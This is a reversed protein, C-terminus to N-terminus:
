RPRRDHGRDQTKAPPQPVTRQAPAPRAAAPPQQRSEQGRQGASRSDIAGTNGRFVSHPQQTQPPATRVEPRRTDAPRPVERPREPPRVDPPRTQPPKMDPPRRTDPRGTEPRVDPPRPTVPKMDPPRRTEPGVDPPRPTVPKMDPRPRDPRGAEPQAPFQRDRGRNADIRPDRPDINRRIIKNDRPQERPPQQARAAGDGRQRRVNDYNV